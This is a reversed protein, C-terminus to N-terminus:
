GAAGLLIVGTANIAARLHPTTAQALLTAARGLIAEPTVQGPGFRGAADALLEARVGAAAGRLCETVVTLPHAKLWRAVEESKLLETIPPIRQLLDPKTESAM